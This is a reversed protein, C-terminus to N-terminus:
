ATDEADITRGRLYADAVLELPLEDLESRKEDILRAFRDYIRPYELNEEDVEVTGDVELRRGSNALRLRRDAQTAIEITRETTPGRWDMEAHLRDEERVGAFDIEVAIPTQSLHRMRFTSTRVVLQGPFIRTLIALGNIGADFVGFGGAKWIWEQDPHTATVDEKWILELWKIQQGVLLDRAREVARNFQSHWAGLVTVGAQEAAIRVRRMEGLTAFPPKELLVHKNAAIVDLSIECRVAPPTCIAVADIGPEAALMQRYDRYRKGCLTTEIPQLNASAVIEFNPNLIIAPLHRKFAITGLGIIAIRCPSM